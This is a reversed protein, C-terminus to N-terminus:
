AAPSTRDRPPDTTVLTGTVRVLNDAHGGAIRPWGYEHSAIKTTKM